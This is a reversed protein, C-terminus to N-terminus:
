RNIHTHRMFMASMVNNPAAKSNNANQPVADEWLIYVAHTSSNAYSKDTYHTNLNITGIIPNFRPLGDHTQPTM